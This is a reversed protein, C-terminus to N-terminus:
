PTDSEYGVTIQYRQVDDRAFTSYVRLYYTGSPLTPMCNKYRDELFLTVDELNPLGDKNLDARRSLNLFDMYWTSGFAFLDLGNVCLDRNLDAVFSFFSMDSCLVINEAEGSAQKNVSAVLTTGDSGLIDFALDHIGDGQVEEYNCSCPDPKVLYFTGVPEVLLRLQSMAPLTFKFFDESPSAELALDAVVLPTFDCSKPAPLAGLDQAEGSSNNQEFRDGYSRQAGRIDDEQPGDTYNTLYAEMLKSGNWPQVHFMGIGHGHEHMVLNRLFRYNNAPDAFDSINESALVMDGRRDPFKYVPSYCYGLINFGATPPDIRHMAIRLDGREGLVGATQGFPAGDDSVEIYTAPIFDAWRNFSEAFLAKWAARNGGFATDFTAHINCPDASELPERKPIAVGDPVFSYTLTFPTYQAISPNTASDDWRTGIDYKPNSGPNPLANLFTELGKATTTPGLFYNADGWDVCFGHRGEIQGHSADVFDAVIRDITKDRDFEAASPPLPCVVTAFLACTLWVRASQRLM